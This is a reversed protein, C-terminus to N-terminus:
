KRKKSGECTIQNHPPSAFVKLNRTFTGLRFYSKSDKYLSCRNHRQSEWKLVSQRIFSYGVFQDAFFGKKWHFRRQETCYLRKYSTIPKKQRAQGVLCLDFFNVATRQRQQESVESWVILNNFRFNRGRKESNNGEKSFCSVFFFLVKQGCLKPNVLLEKIKTAGIGDSDIWSPWLDWNSSFSKEATAAFHVNSSAFLASFFRKSQSNVDM